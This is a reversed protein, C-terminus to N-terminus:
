VKDADATDGRIRVWMPRDNWMRFEASSSKVSSSNFGRVGFSAGGDYHAGSRALVLM